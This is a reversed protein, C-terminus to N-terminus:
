RRGEERDGDQGYSLDPTVYTVPGEGREGSHNTGQTKIM